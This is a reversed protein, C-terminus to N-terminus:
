RNDMELYAALNGDQFGCDYGEKRATACAKAVVFQLELWESTQLRLVGIKLLANRAFKADEEDVQPALVDCSHLSQLYYM